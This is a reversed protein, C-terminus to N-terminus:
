AKTVRMYFRCNWHALFEFQLHPVSPLWEYFAKTEGKHINYVWDDFVLISGHALRSSLFNLCDVTPSYIDCDIRAYAVEHLSNAEPTHLSNEFFGKVLRLNPRESLRLNEAVQEYGCAYQGKSWNEYDNESSPESLGEFSDFGYIDPNFGIQECEEILKGLMYGEFIGFEVVAGPVRESYIQRILGQEYEVIFTLMANLFKKGLPSTHDVSTSLFYHPYPLVKGFFQRTWNGYDRCHDYGGISVLEDSYFHELQTIKAALEDALISSSVLDTSSKLAVLNSEISSKLDKIFPNKISTVTIPSYSESTAKGHYRGRWWRQVSSRIALANAALRELRQRARLRGRMRRDLLLSSIQDSHLGDDLFIERSRAVRRRNYNQLWWGDGYPDFLPTETRRFLATGNDIIEVLDWMVDEAIIDGM